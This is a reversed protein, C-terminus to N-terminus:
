QQGTSTASAASWWSARNTRPAHLSRSSGSMSGCSRPRWSISVTSPRTTEVRSSMSSSSWPCRRRHGNHYLLYVERSLRPSELLGSRAQAGNVEAGSRRGWYAGAPCPIQVAITRYIGLLDEGDPAPYFYEPRSAMQKLETIDLESAQGLGITFVTIGDDKAAKARDVAVSAPVPNALGDTLVIMVPKNQAKHRQSGLETHAEEIGRDIRTQQRVLGPIRVLAADIDSRRGTLDRVVQADSSFAIVAAQDQPLALTAVFADAAAIAAALKTRGASTRGDRMSTSADIVLAVDVRQTGPMCHERLTVPLYLVRPTATPLATPTSSATPTPCATRTRTPTSSPTPSWTATPTVTLWPVVPVPGENSTLIYHPNDLDSVLVDGTESPARWLPCTDFARTRALTRGGDSVAIVVFESRSRARMDIEDAAAIVHAGTADWAISPAPSNFQSDIIANRIAIRGLETLGYPPVFELVVIADDARLALLGQNTPGRSIAVGGAFQVGPVTVEWSRRERLDAVNLAPIHGRNMVLYRGDPTIAASTRLLRLGMFYLPLDGPPGGPDLPSLVIPPAVDSMTEIDVTHVAPADTLIHAYRGDKTVFIATAVGGLPVSGHPPGITGWRLPMPGPTTESLRYKTVSYPPLPARWFDWGSREEADLRSTAVLLTDDGPLLAVAGLPAFPGGRYISPVWWRRRDDGRGQLVYLFPERQAQQYSMAYNAVITTYDSNATMRGPAAYQAGRQVPADHEVSMVSIAGCGDPHRGELGLQPSGDSVFVLEDLDVPATLSTPSPTVTPTASPVSPATATDLPAALKNATLIALPRNEGLPSACTRLLQLRTITHGNDTVRLTLFDAGSQDTTGVILDQGTASWAVPALPSDISALGYINIEEARGFPNFRYLRVDDRTRMALLGSNVPGYNFALDGRGQVGGVSWAGGLLLDVVDLTTDFYGSRVLFRGDPSVAAELGHARGPFPSTSPVLFAGGYETHVPPRVPALADTDITLVQNGPDDLLHVYRGGHSQFIQDYGITGLDYAGREPGLVGNPTMESLLYKRLWVPGGGRDDGRTVLLLADNDPLIAVGGQWNPLAGTIKPGASWPAPGAPDRRLTYLYSRNSLGEGGFLLAPAIVWTLGSTAVIGVRQAGFPAPVGRYAPRASGPEYVALASCGDTPAGTNHQAVIITDDLGDSARGQALPCGVLAIALSCSLAVGIVWICPKRRAKRVALLLSARAAAGEVSVAM